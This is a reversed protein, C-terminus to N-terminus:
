FASHTTYENDTILLFFTSISSVRPKLFYISWVLDFLMTAVRSHNLKDEFDVSPYDDADLRTLRQCVQGYFLGNKSGAKNVTGKKFVGARLWLLRDPETFAKTHLM